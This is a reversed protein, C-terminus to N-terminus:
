RRVLIVALKDAYAIRWRPHRSLMEFLPNPANRQYLTRMIMFRDVGYEAVPSFDKVRTVSIYKEYVDLDIFRTDIFVKGEPYLKWALYGGWADLNLLNGTHLQNNKLFEIAQDPYGTRIPNQVYRPFNGGNDYLLYAILTIAAAKNAPLLWRNLGNPISTPRYAAIFILTFLNFFISFRIVSAKVALGAILLLHAPRVTRWSALMLLACIVGAAITGYYYNHYRTIPIELFKGLPQFEFIFRHAEFNIESLEFLLPKHMHPNILSAALATGICFALNILQRRTLADQRKIFTSLTEGILYTGMIAYGLIFGRHLNAWALMLLPVFIFCSLSYPSITEKEKLRKRGFELLYFLLVANLITFNQPRIVAFMYLCLGVPVLLILSVTRDTGYHRFLLYIVLNIATFLLANCFVVGGFGTLQYTLYYWIQGLWYGNLILSQRLDPAGTTFAFPDSAHLSGNEWIWRGSTIHWWLDDGVGIPHTYLTFLAYLLATLLAYHFLDSRNTNAIQM